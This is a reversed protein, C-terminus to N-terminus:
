KPRNSGNVLDEKKRIYGILDKINNILEGAFPSKPEDPASLLSINKMTYYMYTAQGLDTPDMNECTKFFLVIFKLIDEETINEDLEELDYLTKYLLSCDQMRYLSKENKYNFENVLKKYNNDYKRVAKRAGSNTDYCIYMPELTYSEKFAKIINDFKTSYDPNDERYQDAIKQLGIEIRDRMNDLSLEENNGIGLTAKISTEIDIATAENFNFSGYATKLLSIAMENTSIKPYNMKAKRIINQLREPLKIYIYKNKNVSYDIYADVLAEIEEDTYEDGIEPIVLKVPSQEMKSVMILKEKLNKIYGEKSIDYIFLPNNEVEVPTYIMNGNADLDFERLEPDLDKDNMVEGYDINVSPHDSINNKLFEAVEDMDKESMPESEKINLERLKKELIEIDM